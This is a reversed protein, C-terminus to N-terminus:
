PNSPLRFTHMNPGVRGIETKQGTVTDTQYIAFFDENDSVDDWIIDVTNDTNRQFHVNAPARPIRQIRSNDDPNLPDTGHLFEDMDSDGDGDSDTVLGDWATFPDLGAAIEWDDPLGDEDSDQAILLRIFRQRPGTLNLKDKATHLASDGEVATFYDTIQDARWWKGLDENVQPLVLVKEASASCRYSVHLHILGLEVDALYPVPLAGLSPEWPDTGLAFESFNPIGDHDPDADWGSISSDALQTSDFYLLRWDDFTAAQSFAASAFSLVFATLATRPNM